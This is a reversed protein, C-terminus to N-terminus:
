KCDSHALSQALCKVHVTKKISMTLAAFCTLSIAVSACLKLFKTFIVCNTLLHLWDLHMKKGVSMQQPLSVNAENSSSM